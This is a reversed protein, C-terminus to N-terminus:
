ADSLENYALVLLRDRKTTAGDLGVSVIIRRVEAEGRDKRMETSKTLRPSRDL